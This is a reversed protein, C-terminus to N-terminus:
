EGFSKSLLYKISFDDEEQEDDHRVVLTLNSRGLFYYTPSSPKAMKKGGSTLRYWERYADEQYMDKTTKSWKDGDFFWVCYPDQIQNKRSQWAEFAQAIDYILQEDFGMESSVGTPLGESLEISSNYAHNAIASIAKEVKTLTKKSM